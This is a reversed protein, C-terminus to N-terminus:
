NTLRNTTIDIATDLTKIAHLFGEKDEPKILEVNQMGSKHLELVSKIFKLESQKIYM